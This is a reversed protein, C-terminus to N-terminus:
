VARQIWTGPQQLQMTDGRSHFYRVSPYFHSHEYAGAPVHVQM